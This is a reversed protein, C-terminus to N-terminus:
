FAGRFARICDKFFVNVEKRPSEWFDCRVFELNWGTFHKIGRVM